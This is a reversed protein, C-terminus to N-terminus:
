LMKEELQSLIDAAGKVLLEEALDAGIREANEHDGTKSGEIILSGDPLGVRGTLKLIGGDLVAHGAIPSQCSGGLRQSFGREADVRAKTEPHNLASLNDILESDDLRCQIGIAGQGVAPLMDAPEITSTIRHELDLRILGAAALIIAQFRGEDLRKLRTEVNGRLPQIDLDPRLHLLQCQRRLSSTGVIAGRPLQNIKDVQDSVLADRPDERQMIAVIGLGAPMEAPLDKMSHVALDAENSLLARELEKVFLGKGGIKALSRDLIEDGKTSMPLLEVNLTPYHQLIAAAVHEAQWLALRSKRTAIRITRM